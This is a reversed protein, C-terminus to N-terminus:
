APVYREALTDAEGLAKLTGQLTLAQLAQGVAMPTDGTLRALKYADFPTTQQVVIPELRKILASQERRAQKNPHAM